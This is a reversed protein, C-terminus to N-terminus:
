RQQVLVIVAVVEDDDEVADVIRQGLAVSDLLGLVRELHHAKLRFEGSKEGLWVEPHEMPRAAAVHGVIGLRAARASFHGVVQIRM